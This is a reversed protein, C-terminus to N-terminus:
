VVMKIRTQNMGLVYGNNRIDKLYNIGTSLCGVIVINERM